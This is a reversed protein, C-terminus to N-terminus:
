SKVIIPNQCECLLRRKGNLNDPDYLECHMVKDRLTNILVGTGGKQVDIGMYHPDYVDITDIDTIKTHKRKHKFKVMEDEPSREFAPEEFLMCKYRGDEQTACMIDEYIGEMALM